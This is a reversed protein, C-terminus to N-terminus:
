SVSLGQALIAVENNIVEIFGKQIRFTHTNGTSDIIRVDGMELSSVIAAHGNLVEFQGTTGPVKVSKIDGSYVEKGPTLIVLQM